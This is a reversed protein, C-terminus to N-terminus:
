YKMKFADQESALISQLDAQHAIDSPTSDDEGHLFHEKTWGWREKINALWDVNKQEELIKITKIKSLFDEM